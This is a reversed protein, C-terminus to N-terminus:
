PKSMLALVATGAEVAAERLADRRVEAFATLVAAGLTMPSRKITEDSFGLEALLDWAREEPTPMTVVTAFSALGSRM